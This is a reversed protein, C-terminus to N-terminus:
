TLEGLDLREVRVLPNGAAKVRTIELMGESVDTALVQVGRSALYLADEGTGCGLELVQDGAQFYAELRTHVRGRLYRGILTDSFTADYSPALTDFARHQSM